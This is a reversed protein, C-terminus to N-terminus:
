IYFCINTFQFLPLLNENINWINYSVWTYGLKHCGVNILKAMIAPSCDEGGHRKVSKDYNHFLKQVAFIFNVVRNTLETHCRQHWRNCAHNLELSIINYGNKLYNRTEHSMLSEIILHYITTLHQIQFQRFVIDLPRISYHSRKISTNVPAIFRIISNNALNMTATILSM